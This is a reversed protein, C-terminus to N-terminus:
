PKRATAFVLYRELQIGTGTRLAELKRGLRERVRAREGSSLDSLFNGFSSSTSWAFLDDVGAVDDVFTQLGVEVNAFGADNLLRALDTANVRYNTGLSNAGDARNL